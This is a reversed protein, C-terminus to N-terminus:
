CSAPRRGVMLHALGGPAVIEEGSRSEDKQVWLRALLTRFWAPQIRRARLRKEVVVAAASCGYPPATYASM